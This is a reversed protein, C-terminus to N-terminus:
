RQRALMVIRMFFAVQTCAKCAEASNTYYYPQCLACKTAPTPTGTDPVLCNASAAGCTGALAGTTM